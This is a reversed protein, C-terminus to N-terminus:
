YKNITSLRSVYQQSKGKLKERIDIKKVKHNILKQIIKRNSFDGIKFKLLENTKKREQQATTLEV